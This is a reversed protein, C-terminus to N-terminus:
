NTYHPTPDLQTWETSRGGIPRNHWSRMIIITFNTSHHNAPSVSSSQSFGAGTGSQGGCVGSAARVRVKAVTTPLWRSVARAVAHGFDSSLAVTSVM